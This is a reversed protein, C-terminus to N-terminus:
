VHPLRLLYVSVRWPMACIVIDLRFRDSEVVCHALFLINLLIDLIAPAPRRGMDISGNRRANGVIDLIEHYTCGTEIM